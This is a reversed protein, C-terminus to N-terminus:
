PEVRLLRISFFDLERMGSASTSGTTASEERLRPSVTM